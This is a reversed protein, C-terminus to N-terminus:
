RNTTPNPEATLAATTRPVAPPAADPAQYGGGLAQMLLVQADLTRAQLEVAARRQALWPQETALVQLYSGLGAAYRRQAVEFAQATGHLARAQETRQDQVAALGTLADAAERVADLLVANYAAVAADLDAARGHLQARLRGADFLPLRLAPTIGAQRSGLQLLHDLGLANLGVFAGLQVDPYFQARAERVGQAAADVRWRAAVVDARRGLLDAGLRGAPPAAPGLADLRPALGALADAPQLTLTALAQRTRAIQEDLGLRQTRAEPLAAEAQRLEVVTDLGGRVRARVLDLTRQRLAIVREIVDREALLRALLVYQRTVAGALGLCAHAVDAAAARQQGLAAALAARQRGFFDPSWSGSIQLTATDRTTGAIPKPILGNATYHQRSAEASLISQVGGAAEALEGGAQARALRAAAAQVGPHTAVAREVLADLAPDGLATWWRDAVALAETDAAVGAPLVTQPALLPAVPQAPGPNACGGLGSAAVLVGALMLAGTKVGSMARAPRSM